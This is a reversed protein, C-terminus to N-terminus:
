KDLPDSLVADFLIQIEKIVEVYRVDDVDKNPLMDMELKERKLKILQDQYKRDEKKNRIQLYQELVKLASDIFPVM